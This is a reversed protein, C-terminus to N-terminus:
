FPMRDNDEVLSKTIREIERDRLDQYFCMKNYIRLIRQVDANVTINPKEAGVFRLGKFPMVLYVFKAAEINSSLNVRDGNSLKYYM